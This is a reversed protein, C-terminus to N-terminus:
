SLCDPVWVMGRFRTKAEATYREERTDLTM